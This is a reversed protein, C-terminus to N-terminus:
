KIMDQYRYNENDSSAYNLPYGTNPRPVNQPRINPYGDPDLNIYVNYSSSPDTDKIETSNLDQNQVQSEM